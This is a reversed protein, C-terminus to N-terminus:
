EITYIVAPRFLVDSTAGETLGDAGVAHISLTKDANVGVVMVIGKQNPEEGTLLTFTYIGNGTDPPADHCAGQLAQYLELTMMRDDCTAGDVTLMHGDHDNRIADHTRAVDITVEPNGLDIGMPGAYVVARKQEGRADVFGIVVFDERKVGKEAYKEFLAEKIAEGRPDDIREASLASPAEESLSEPLELPPREEPKADGQPRVLRLHGRRDPPRNEPGM